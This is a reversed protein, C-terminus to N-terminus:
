CSKMFRHLAMPAEGEWDYPRPFEIKVPCIKTRQNMRVLDRGVGAACRHLL